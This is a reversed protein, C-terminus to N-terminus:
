RIMMARINARPRGHQLGNNLPMEPVGFTVDGAFRANEGSPMDGQNVLVDDLYLKVNKGRAVVRVQVDRNLPLSSPSDVGWNGDRPDGIRIHLRTDGPYLWGAFVRDGYNCCNNKTSTFRFIASWLNVVGRINITFEFTYNRPMAGFNKVIPTGNELNFLPGVLVKAGSPNESTPGPFFRQNEGDHCPFVMMSAASRIGGNIDLCQGPYKQSFIRKSKPDYSWKNEASDDCPGIIVSKGATIGDSGAKFYDNGVSTGTRLCKGTDLGKLRGDGDVSWAQNAYGNCPYSIVRSGDEQGFGQVDACLPGQVPDSAFTQISNKDFTRNIEPSHLVRTNDLVNKYEPIIKWSADTHFLVSRDSNAIATLLLGEPGGSNTQLVVIETIGPKFIYTFKKNPWDGGWGGGDNYVQTDNMFITANNDAAVYITAPLDSATSNQFRYYLTSGAVAGSRTNVFSTVPSGANGGARGGIWKAGKDPYSTAVGWPAMNYDGYVFAPIAQLLEIARSNKMPSEQKKLEIGYCQQIADKRNEDLISNDNAKKHIGDYYKKVQDVGGQEIAKKLADPRQNGREDFPAVTGNVTCGQPRNEDTAFRSSAPLKDYTQGVHSQSGRNEYIYQICEPPLPGTKANDVDCPTKRRIGLCFTSAYDWDSLVLKEGSATRGTFARIAIDYLREAIEALSLTKGFEDVLLERAKQSTSPYGTGKEDCGAGLYLQMICEQNYNGPGAGKVFCPGSNLFEASTSKTVYPGSPCTTAEKESPDVFTFPLVFECSMDEKGKGPKMAMYPETGVKVQGGVRPRANTVTDVLILRNLDMSFEGSATPGVLYGALYSDNGGKVTLTVRDGEQIDEMKLTQMSTSLELPEKTFPNGNILMVLQGKGVFVIKPEVTNVVSDIFSFSENELCQSCGPIDFNQQKQCKLKNMLRVCQKKNVVFMGPACKGVTPNYQVFRDMMKRGAFKAQDITDEDVYLGGLHPESKSNQGGEFCLGCTQGFDPRDFVDCSQISKVAECMVVNKARGEPTVANLLRKQAEENETINGSPAVDVATIARQIQVQAGRIGSSGAGVSVGPPNLPDTIRSLDNHKEIGGAVLNTYQGGFATATADPVTGEFGEGKRRNRHLLYLSGASLAGLIFIRDM